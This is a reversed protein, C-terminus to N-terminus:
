VARLGGYKKEYAENALDYRDKARPPAAVEVTLVDDWREARLWTAPYPIFQGNDRMWQDTHRQALIAKVVADIDPRIAETQAWAKRADGKALKKPYVSWFREFDSQM